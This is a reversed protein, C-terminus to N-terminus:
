YMQSMLALLSKPFEKMWREFYPLVTSVRTQQLMFESVVTGYLSPKERWPLSRRQDYYWSLPKTPVKGKDDWGSLSELQNHITKEFDKGADVVLMALFAFEM